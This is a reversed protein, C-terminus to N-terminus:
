PKGAAAGATAGPARPASAAGTQNTADTALRREMARICANVARKEDESHAAAISAKAQALGAQGQGSQFTLIARTLAIDLVNTSGLQQARDLALNAVALDRSRLSGDTAIQYAMECLGSADNTRVSLLMHGAQGVRPDDQRALDLYGQLQERALVRRKTQELNYRGAVVDDVVLGLDDRLPHGYWLVTGDRGVVYARPLRNQQFLWQYSLTTRRTDDAAVAFGLDGGKSRAWDQLQGPPEDSIAAVVVGQDRYKAQLSNLNTIALENARSLTCFVLVYINTGPAIRVPRGKVWEQVTLAPAPDGLQSHKQSASHPVVASKEPPNTTQARGAVAVLGLAVTLLFVAFKHIM